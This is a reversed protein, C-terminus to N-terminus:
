GRHLLALRNFPKHLLVGLDAKQEAFALRPNGLHSHRRQSHSSTVSFRMLYRLERLLGRVPFSDVHRLPVTATRGEMM